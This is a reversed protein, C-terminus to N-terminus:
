PSDPHPKQIQPHTNDIIPGRFFNPSFLLRCLCNHMCTQCEMLWDYWIGVVPLGITGQGLLVNAMSDDGVPGACELHIYYPYIKCKKPNHDPLALNKRVLEGQDGKEPPKSKVVGGNPIGNRTPTKDANSPQPETFTQVGPIKGSAGDLTCINEEGPDTAVVANWVRLKGNIQSRCPSQSNAWINSQSSLDNSSTGPLTSDFKNSSSPDEIFAPQLFSTSDDADFTFPSDPVSKAFVNISELVVLALAPFLM